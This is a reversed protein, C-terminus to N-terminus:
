DSSKSKKVQQNMIASCMSWNNDFMPAGNDGIGIPSANDYYWSEFVDEFTNDKSGPAIYYPQIARFYTGGSGSVMEWNCFTKNFNEENSDM